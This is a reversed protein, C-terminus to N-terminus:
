HRALVRRFTQNRTLLSLYHRFKDAIEATLQAEHAAALVKGQIPVTTTDTRHVTCQVAHMLVQKRSTLRTLM